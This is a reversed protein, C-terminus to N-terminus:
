RFGGPHPEYGEGAALSLVGAAVTVDLYASELIEGDLSFAPTEVDQVRIELSRTQLHTIADRDDGFLRYVAATQLLEAPPMAEVITVDLLGDEMDAPVLRERGVRRANGIVVCVASGQWLAGEGAPDSLALDFGDYDTLSRLTTLVYALVGFESKLSPTTESSAEATIGGICSNVFPRDNAIGVDVRRPQRADVAAFGAELSDIGVNAAIDNGTGGPVVGLTVDDYADAEHIASVVENVTGDGGCALITDAGAHIADLALEHTHGERESEYVAYGYEAALDYVPEVHTGDGSVPNLVVVRRAATGDADHVGGDALTPKRLSGHPAPTDRTPPPLGRDM